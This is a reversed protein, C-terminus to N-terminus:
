SRFINEKHYLKVFFTTNGVTAPKPIKPGWLIRPEGVVEAGAGEAEGRLVLNKVGIGGEGAPM